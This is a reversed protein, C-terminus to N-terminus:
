RRRAYIAIRYVAEDRPDVTVPPEEVVIWEGPDIAPFLVDGEPRLEVHSITLKDAFAMGQAYIEGGGIITVEDKGDGEAVAKARAVAAELSDIVIVGDPQYGQQRTVVINTRGPLPRGVSEYQKRGMVIPKGMTTRKFFAMDSPIRWPIGGNRGIVGNAAVAAIMAIGVTV